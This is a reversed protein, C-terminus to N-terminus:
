NRRWVAAFRHAQLLSLTLAQRPLQLPPAEDYCWHQPSPKCVEFGVRYIMAPLYSLLCVAWVQM